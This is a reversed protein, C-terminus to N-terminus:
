SLNISKILFVSAVLNISIETQWFEFVREEAGLRCKM